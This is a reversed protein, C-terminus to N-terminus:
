ILLQNGKDVVAQRECNTHYNTADRTLEVNSLLHKMGKIDICIPTILADKCTSKGRFTTNPSCYCIM